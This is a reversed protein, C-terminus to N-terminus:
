EDSEVFEPRLSLAEREDQRHAEIANRIALHRKDTVAVADNIRMTGDSLKLSKARANSM